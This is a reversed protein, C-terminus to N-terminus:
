EFNMHVATKFKMGLPRYCPHKCLLSSCDGGVVLIDDLAATYAEHQLPSEKLPVKYNFVQTWVLKYSGEPITLRVTSWTRGADVGLDLLLM